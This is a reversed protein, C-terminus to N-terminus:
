RTVVLNARQFEKPSRYGCSGMIQQLELRHAALDTAPAVMVADAGCVIARATDSPSTLPEAAILHVYVGTEHLHRNRADRADALATAVPVGVGPTSPDNGVLVAAAGTRMLHLAAKGSSCSGVIAPIELSRVVSKLDLPERRSSVHEASVIRGAIVVMDLEVKGLVPLLEHARAPRVSVVTPSSTEGCRERLVDRLAVPDLPAGVPALEDLDFVSLALSSATGGEVVFPADFSFADLQWGPDVEDADRTRRGPVISVDGLAYARRAKKGLGIEIEDV